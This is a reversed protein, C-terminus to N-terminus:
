WTSTVLAPGLVQAQIVKDSSLNRVRIIDGPQGDALAEGLTSAEIGYQRALIRVQQGRRVAAAESLLSPNLVQDGRLRRRASLGIVEDERVMFGRQARSINIRQWKLHGAELPQGRDVTTATVLVPLFLNQQTSVLLSWGPSDPCRVELRLRELPSPQGSTQTVRVPQSCPTFGSSDTLPTINLSHNLDQWGQRQAELEILAELYQSVAQEIQESASNALASTTPLLLLALCASLTKGWRQRRAQCLPLFAAKRPQDSM